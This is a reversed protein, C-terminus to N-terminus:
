RPPRHRKKEIADIAALDAPTAPQVKAPPKGSLQAILRKKGDETMMAAIPFGVPQNVLEPERGNDDGDAGEPALAVTEVPQLLLTASGDEDHIVKFQFHDLVLKM